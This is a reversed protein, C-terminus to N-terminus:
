LHQVELRPLGPTFDDLDGACRRIIQSSADGVITCQGAALGQQEVHANCRLTTCQGKSRMHMEHHNHPRGSLAPCIMAITGTGSADRLHSACTIANKTDAPGAPLTFHLIPNLIEVRFLALPAALPLFLLIGM